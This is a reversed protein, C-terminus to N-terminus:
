TAGRRSHGDLVSQGNAHIFLWANRGVTEQNSFYVRLDALAGISEMESRRIMRLADQLLEVATLFQKDAIRADLQEPVAQLKASVSWNTLYQNLQQRSM